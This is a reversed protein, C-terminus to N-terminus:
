AKVFIRNEAFMSNYYYVMQKLSKRALSTGSVKKLTFGAPDSLDPVINFFRYSSDIKINNNRDQSSILLGPYFFQNMLRM